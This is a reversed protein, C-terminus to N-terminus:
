RIKSTATTKHEKIERNLKGRLTKKIPYKKLPTEQTAIRKIYRKKRYILKSLEFSVHPSLTRKTPAPEEALSTM